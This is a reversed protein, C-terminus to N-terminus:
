AAKRICEKECYLPERWNDFPFNNLVRIGEADLVRLEDTQGRDGMTVSYQMGYQKKVLDIPVEYSIFKQIGKANFRRLLRPDDLSECSTLILIPGSGTFVVAAKM